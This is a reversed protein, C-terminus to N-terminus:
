EGISAAAGNLPSASKTSDDPSDYTVLDSTSKSEAAGNLASNPKTADDPSDYTVLDSTSKVEIIDDTEEPSSIKAIINM